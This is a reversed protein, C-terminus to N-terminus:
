LGEWMIYARAMTQMGQSIRYDTHWTGQRPLLSRQMDCANKGRGGLRTRSDYTMNPVCLWRTAPGLGLTLTMRAARPKEM